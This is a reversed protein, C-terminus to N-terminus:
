VQENHWPVPTPWAAEEPCVHMLALEVETAEKREHVKARKNQRERARVCVCVSVCVNIKISLIPDSIVSSEKLIM